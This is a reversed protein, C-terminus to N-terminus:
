KLKKRCYKAQVIKEYIKMLTATKKGVVQYVNDDINKVPMIGMLSNTLFVEESNFLQKISIDQEIIPVKYERAAKIIVNRIIGPLIGSGIPPTYIVQNFVCFINSACGEALNGKENILIAELFGFKKAEKRILLKEMYSATKHHSLWYNSYCNKDSITVSVGTNYLNADYPVGAKVTMIVNPYGTLTLRLIGDVIENIKILSLAGDLLTERNYKMYLGLENCSKELRELHEEWFIPWSNKILITEFIGYGFLLAPDDISVNAKDKKIIEGNIWVKMSVGEMINYTEM